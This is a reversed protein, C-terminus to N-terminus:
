RRQTRYTVARSGWREGRTELARLAHLLAAHGDRDTATGALADPFRDLPLGDARETVIAIVREPGGLPHAAAILQEDGVDPLDRPIELARGAAIPVPRARHRPVVRTVGGDPRVCLISLYGAIASEVRISMPQGEILPAPAVTLGIHAPGTGLGMVRAKLFDPVPTPLAMRLAQVYGDAPVQMVAMSAADVLAPARLAQWVVTIPESDAYITGYILVDVAADALLTDLAGRAQPRAVVVEVGRRGLATALQEAAVAGFAHTIGNLEFAPVVLARIGDTLATALAASAQVVRRTLVHEVPARVRVWWTGDGARWAPHMEVVDRVHQQWAAVSDRQWEEQIEVHGDDVLERFKLRSRGSVVVGISRALEVVAQQYAADRDPGSGVAYRWEATAPTPADVWAPRSATAGCALLALSGLLTSM